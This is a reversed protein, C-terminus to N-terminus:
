PWRSGYGSGYSADGLHTTTSSSYQGTGYDYSSTYSTDGLRSTTSSSFAGRDYDYCSTYTSAGLGQSTCSTSGYALASTAPVLAMLGLAAAAISLRLSRM